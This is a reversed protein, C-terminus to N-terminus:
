PRSIRIATIPLEPDPLDVRALRRPAAKFRGAMSSSAMLQRGPQFASLVSSGCAKLSSTVAAMATSAQTVSPM